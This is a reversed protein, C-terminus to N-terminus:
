PGGAARGASTLFAVLLENVREPADALVWHSAEAIHEVRVDPVWRELGEAASANLMRDRDGWIVLTPQEVRGDHPDDHLTAARPRRRIARYYNLAATLAGPRALAEKHRRIDEDSFAGPRVPQRRLLREVLAYDAARIVLEPLWPLQFFAIYSSRLLQDGRRLERVFARPHPGNIAAVREVVAPYHSAVRWAIAAGWDHGVVSATREGLRAVLDAVDAALVDLTYSGVGTPKASLNYGRLDPAVVRFGARALAPIQHRWAYWFQPFGHLLLVLPGEGAEVCHLRVGNAVVFREAFNEVDHGTGAVSPTMDHRAEVAQPGAAGSVRTADRRGLRWIRAM